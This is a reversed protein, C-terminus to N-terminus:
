YARKIKQKQKKIRINEPAAQLKGAINKYFYQRHEHEHKKQHCRYIIKYGSLPDGPM